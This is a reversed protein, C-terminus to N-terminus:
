YLHDDLIRFAGALQYNFGLVETEAIFVAGNDAVKRRRDHTAVLDPQDAWVTHALGGQELQQQAFEFWLATANTMTHVELDAVIVLQAFLEVLGFGGTVVNSVAVIKNVYIPVLAMDHGVQFIEEESWIPLACTQVGTM